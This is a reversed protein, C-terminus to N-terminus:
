TVYIYCMININITSPVYISKIVELSSPMCIKKRVGEKDLFVYDTGIRIEELGTLVDLKTLNINTFGNIM